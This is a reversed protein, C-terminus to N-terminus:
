GWIVMVLLASGFGILIIQNPLGFLAGMHADIGWRTLKAALPFDEFRIRDTVALSRPDVAVADVQTPWSRDIETVTWARDASAPPRIEVKGAHIGGARASALVRDFMAPEVHGSHPATAGHHHAHEDHTSPAANALATSVGPTGWGFQKRLVGINGGAYQSWTLGTASFF